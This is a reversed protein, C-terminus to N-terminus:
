MTLGNRPRSSTLRTWDRVTLPALGWYDSGSSDVPPRGTQQDAPPCAQPGVTPPSSHPPTM